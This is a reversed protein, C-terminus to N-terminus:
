REQRLYREHTGTADTNEKSHITAEDNESGHSLKWKREQWPGDHGFRRLRHWLRRWWKM